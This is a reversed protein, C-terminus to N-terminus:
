NNTIWRGRKQQEGRRESRKKREGRFFRRFAVANLLNKRELHKEV